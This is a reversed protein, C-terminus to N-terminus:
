TRRAKSARLDAPPGISAHISALTGVIHVFDRTGRAQTTFANMIAGEDLDTCAALERWRTPPPLQALRPHTVAIQKAAVERASGLLGERGGHTWRFRGAALIHERLQRRALTPEPQMPGFRPLGRALGLLILVSSAALTPVAHDWLWAWLPLAQPAHLVILERDSPAFGLIQRLVEANDHQGITRNHFRARMGGVITLRGAGIPVSAIAPGHKESAVIDPAQRSFSLIPAVARSITIPASTGPLQVEETPTRATHKPQERKIGYRDLLIDPNAAPEPEVIAHGGSQLWNDLARLRSASMGARRNSLLIATQYGPQELPRRFVAVTSRMGLREAFRM